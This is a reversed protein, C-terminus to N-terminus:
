NQIVYLISCRELYNGTSDVVTLRIWYEGNTFAETLLTGLSGSVVPTDGTYFTIFDEPTSYGEQRIELKYFSFDDRTATGRFEQVNRM